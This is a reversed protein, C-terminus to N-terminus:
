LDVDLLYCAVWMYLEFLTLGIIQQSAFMQYILTLNNLNSMLSDVVFISQTWLVDLSFLQTLVIANWLM